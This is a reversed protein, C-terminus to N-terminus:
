QQVRLEVTNGDPDLIYISNGFGQAGYRKIFDGTEIGFSNLHQTMDHESIPMIQLCFHDVNNEKASPPGGGVRGLQSDVTVLDILANGARLQTLGAQQSLKREIECGLIKGYFYLMSELHSTRLVIHDIAAIRIM